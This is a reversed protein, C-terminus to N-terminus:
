RPTAPASEDMIHDVVWGAPTRHLHVSQPVVHSPNDRVPRKTALSYQTQSWTESVEVQAESGDPAFAFRGFRQSLLHGDAFEGQQRLSQLATLERQLADGSYCPFLPAPDLDHFSRSEADDARLIAAAINAQPGSPPGPAPRAAQHNHGALTLATRVVAFLVILVLVGGLVGFVAWVVGGRLGGGPKPPAQSDAALPQGDYLCFRLADDTFVRGCQPCRRM